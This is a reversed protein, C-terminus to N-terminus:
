IELLDSYEPFAAKGNSTHKTLRITFPKGDIQERHLKM